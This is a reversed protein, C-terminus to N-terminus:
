AAAEAALREALDADLREVLATCLEVADQLAERDIAEPVDEARHSGPIAGGPERCGVAVAPLRAIRAPWASSLARGAAPAAGLEPDAAAVEACLEVLRPHFRMGGEGTEWRVQGRGCATLALVVTLEPPWDRRHRLYGRMGLAGATGAGALVVEVELASLDGRDLLEALALAAAVGSANDNAGPSRENLAVDLAAAIAVIFVITPVLQLLGLGLGELGAVRLAATLTLLAAAAALAAGPGPARPHQALRRQIAPRYVLGDLGSDYNAAIVLRVPREPGPPPSVVNQTARQGTLRRLLEFRGTVELALSVLVVACVGLGAVPTSVSLVSGVVAVASHLALSLATNPHVWHPEIEVDRGAGRLEDALWLAARREADTGPGRGRFSCLREITETPHM